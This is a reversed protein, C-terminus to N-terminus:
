RGNESHYYGSLYITGVGASGKVYVKMGKAFKLPSGSHSGASFDLELIERPIAAATGALFDHDNIGDYSITIGTSNENIIRLLFCAEDLGNSNIAQYSATLSAAAFSTLPIALIRNKHAM